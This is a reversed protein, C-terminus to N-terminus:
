RGPVPTAFGFRDRLYEITVPTPDVLKHDNAPRLVLTLDSANLQAYKVVLADQEKLQFTLVTTTASQQAAAGPRPWPGVQLVLVDQLLRQTLIVPVGATQTGTIPQLTFTVILDVRDGAQIAEAVNTNLSVPLAMAVSGNDLILSANSHTEKLTEKDVLMKDVVPQGPFIPVLTLKNTVEEQNSHAGLPTPIRQPWDVQGLQDATIETREPINQFAVVLSTTPEALPQAQRPFFVYLALGAFLAFLVGLIILVAGVRRM